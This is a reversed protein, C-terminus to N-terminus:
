TKSRDQGAGGRLLDQDANGVLTDNGAGGFLADPGDGAGGGAGIRDNGSEGYLRDDGGQGQLLDNGDGGYITDNGWGAVVTDNGRGALVLDDSNESAISDNGNGGSLTAKPLAATPPTDVSAGFQIVDNGHGGAIRAFKGQWWLNDVSIRDNGRGGSVISSSLGFTQHANITDDGGGGRIVLLAGEGTLIPIDTMQDNVRAAANNGAADVTISVEIDDPGDTGVITVHNGEVRVSLLRRRELLECTM